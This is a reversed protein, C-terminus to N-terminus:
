KCGEPYPQPPHWDACPDPVVMPAHWPVLVIPTEPVSAPPSWPQDAPLWCPRAGPATECNSVYAPQPAAEPVPAAEQTPQDQACATRTDSVQSCPPLSTLGGNVVVGSGGGGGTNPPAVPLPSAKPVATAQVGPGLWLPPTWGFQLAGIIAFVGIMALMLAITLLNGLFKGVGMRRPRGHRMYHNWLEEDTM